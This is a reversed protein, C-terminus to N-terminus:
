EGGVSIGGFRSMGLQRALLLSQGDEGISLGEGLEIGRPGESWHAGRDTSWIVTKEGLAAIVATTFPQSRLVSVLQVYSQSPLGTVSDWEVGDDTSVVLGRETGAFIRLPDAGVAVAHLALVTRRRLSSDDVVDFSAGGDKSAWISYADADVADAAVRRAIWLRQDSAYKPSFAAATWEKGEADPLWAWSAGGDRSIRGDALLSRDSAYAPSIALSRVPATAASPQWSAGRDRSIWLGSEAAAFLTGDSAYAPSALLANVRQGDGQPLGPAPRWNRGGDESRYLGSAETGALALRGQSGPLILVSSPSASFLTANSAERLAEPWTRGADKSRWLGAGDTALYIERSGRDTPVAAYPRTEAPRGTLILFPLHLISRNDDEYWIDFGPVGFDRALAVSTGTLPSGAPADVFRWSQGGDESVAGVHGPDALAVALVPDAPWGNSFSLDRIRTAALPLKRWSDGADDSRYLGSANWAMVSRDDLDYRISLDDGFDAPLAMGQFEPAGGEPGFVPAGEAPVAVREWRQGGDSTRYIGDEAGVIVFEDREYVPSFAAAGVAHVEGPKLVVDVWDRLGQEYRFLRWETQVIALALSNRDYNPAIALVRGDGEGPVAARSWRRGFDLSRWAQGTADRAFVVGALNSVAYRTDIPDDTQREWALGRASRHATLGAALLVQAPESVPEELLGLVPTAGGAGTVYLSYVGHEALELRLQTLVTPSGSARLRAEVGGADLTQYGDIRGPLVRRYRTEGGALDLEVSALDSANIVRLRATGPGPRAQGDAFADLGIAGPAGAVPRVLASYHGGKDLRLRTEALIPGSAGAPVAQIRRSGERSDAYGAPKGYALGSVQVRGDVLLDVAPAGPAVHIARLQPDPQQEAPLNMAEIAHVAGGPLLSHEWDPAVQAPAAPGAASLAGGPIELTAPEPAAAPVVTPALGVILVIPLLARRLAPM